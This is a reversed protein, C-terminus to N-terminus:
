RRGSGRAGAWPLQAGDLVGVAVLARAEDAVAQAVHEGALVVLVRVDGGEHVDLEGLVGVGALGPDGVDAVLGDVHGVEVVVANVVVAPVVAHHVQM